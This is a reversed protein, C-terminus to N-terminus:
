PCSAKLEVVLGTESFLYLHEENGVRAQHTVANWHPGFADLGPFASELSM